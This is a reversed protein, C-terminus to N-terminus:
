NRDNLRFPYLCDNAQVTNLSLVFRTVGISLFRSLSSIFFFVNIRNNSFNVFLFVFVFCVLCCIIYLMNAKVCRESESLRSKQITKLSTSLLQKKNLYGKEFGIESHTVRILVGLAKGKIKRFMSIRNISIESEQLHLKPLVLM